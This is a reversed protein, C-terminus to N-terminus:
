RRYLYVLIKSTIQIGLLQCMIRILVIKKTKGYNMIWRYESMDKKLMNRDNRNLIGYYYLTIMYEYALFANIERQYSENIFTNAWKRIIFLLSKVTRVSVKNTISGEREQRYFYYPFSCYSFSQAKNLVRITWDIDESLLDKQFYLANDIIFKRRIAKTCASGPFKNRTSLYKLVVDKNQCVIYKECYVDDLRTIRGSPFVKFAELFILDVESNSKKINRDIEFLSDKGIYDDGDIFLIYKGKAVKIGANRADSLGGNAKHIVSINSYRKELEDCIAASKDISGDDVLIVECDKFNQEQISEVCKNIFKEINYVPVIISFQM